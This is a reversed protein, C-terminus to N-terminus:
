SKSSPLGLAADLVGTLLPDQTLSDVEEILAEGDSLLRYAGTEEGISVCGNERCTLELDGQGDKFSFAIRFGRSPEAKGTHVMDVRSGATDTFWAGDKEARGPKWGLRSALWLFLEIAEAASGGTLSVRSIRGLRSRAEESDFMRATQVRLAVTRRWALDSVTIGARTERRARALIKLLALPDEGLSACYATDVILKDLLESAQVLLPPYPSLGDLWWVFVPLDRILLPAWTGPERGLGDTGSQIRIEEFCVGRNRADPYCRGGVAVATRPGNGAEITLIRAPRKGLIFDLAPAHVDRNAGPLVIVLNFLNTRTGSIYPNSERERIRAIEEEIARPDLVSDSSVAAEM